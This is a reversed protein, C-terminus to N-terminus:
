DEGKGFSILPARLNKQFCYKGQAAKAEEEDFFTQRLLVEGSKRYRVVLVYRTQGEPCNFLWNSHWADLDPETNRM